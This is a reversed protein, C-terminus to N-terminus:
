NSLSMKDGAEDGGGREDGGEEGARREEGRRGLVKV